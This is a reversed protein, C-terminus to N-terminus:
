LGVFLGYNVTTNEHVLMLVNCIEITVYDYKSFGVGVVM